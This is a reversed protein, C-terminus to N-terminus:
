LSQEVIARYAVCASNVYAIDNVLDLVNLGDQALTETETEYLIRTELTATVVEADLPLNVSVVGGNPVLHEARPLWVGCPNCLAVTDLSAIINTAEVGVVELKALDLSTLTSRLEEDPFMCSHLQQHAKYNVVNRRIFLDLVECLAKSRESDKDVLHVWRINLTRNSVKRSMRREFHGFRSELALILGEAHM